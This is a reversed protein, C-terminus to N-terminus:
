LASQSAEGANVLTVHPGGLVVRSAPAEVRLVKMVAAVAPMQPTTATLCYTLTDHSRIYDRVADLYNQVGSLDLVDVKYGAQEVVAAVRLLGLPMFVREDLRFVSPPIIFCVPGASNGNMIVVM